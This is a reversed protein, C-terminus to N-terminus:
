LVRKEDSLKNKPSINKDSGIREGVYYLDCVVSARLPFRKWQVALFQSGSRIKHVASAYKTQWMPGIRWIDKILAEMPHGYDTICIIPSVILGIYQLIPSDCINKILNWKWNCSFRIEFKLIEHIKVPWILPKTLKNLYEEFYDWRKLFEYRIIIPTKKAFTHPSYSMFLRRSILFRFWWNM